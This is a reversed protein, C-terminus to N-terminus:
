ILHLSAWTEEINCSQHKGAGQLKYNITNYLDLTAAREATRAPLYRTGLEHNSCRFRSRKSVKGAEEQKAARGALYSDSSRISPLLRGRLAPANAAVAIKLLTVGGQGSSTQAIAPGGHNDASLCAALDTYAGTAAWHKTRQGLNQSSSVSGPASTTTPTLGM